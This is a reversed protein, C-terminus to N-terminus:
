SNREREIDLAVGDLVRALGREFRGSDLMLAVMRRWAGLPDDEGRLALLRPFEGSELLSELYDLVPLMTEDDIVDEAWREAVEGERIAFGFVYDDILGILELQGDWDLGTDAVAALSQEVHRLTNPGGEVGVGRLAELSWPHRRLATRTRRAIQTLAERWHPSFEEEPVLLEGMIADDMLALLEDKNQVYHYLTMTGAGLEAAVRRMSVADFGEADAVALASAAIQERTFRARRAGPAPRSWIPAHTENSM